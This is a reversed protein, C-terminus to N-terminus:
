ARDKRRHKAHLKWFYGVLNDGYSVAKRPITWPDDATNAAGRVCTLATLYGADRVAEVVARDHDGYPYCFHRVPRGLIGELRERSERVERVMGPPPIRSLRPHTLAHSGVEVTAPLDRLAAADMLRPRPGVFETLWDAEGGVRDAVAFVTAPFGHEQLVPLAHTRFNDYGDDFTLVVSRAPLPAGTFLGAYADQLSLVRYRFRALYAMQARFRRVHCYSARHTRPEPFEGVQHYM